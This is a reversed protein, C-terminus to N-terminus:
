RLLRIGESRRRKAYRSNEVSGEIVASRERVCGFSRVQSDTSIRTRSARRWFRSDSVHWSRYSPLPTASPSTLVVIRMRNREGSRVRECSSTFRSTRRSASASPDRGPMVTLPQSFAHSHVCDLDEVCQIALDLAQDVPELREFGLVLPELVVDGRGALRLLLRASRPLSDLRELGLVLLELVVDGGRALGLL